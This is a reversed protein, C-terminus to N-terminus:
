RPVSGFARLKLEETQTGIPSPLLDAVPGLTVGRARPGPPPVRRRLLSLGTSSLALRVAWVQHRGHQRIRDASASQRQLGLQEHHYKGSLSSTGRNDNFALDHGVSTSSVSFGFGADRSNLIRLSGGVHSNTIIVGQTLSSDLLSGNVTSGNLDAM